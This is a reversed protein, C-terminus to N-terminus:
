ALGSPLPEDLAHLLERAAARIDTVLTGHEDLETAHPWPWTRCIRISPRVHADRHGLLKLFAELRQGDESAAYRRQLLWPWLSEPIADYRCAGVKAFDSGAWNRIYEGIELSCTLYLRQAVPANRFALHVNPRAHWSGAQQALFEALRQARGTRYLARAQPKLEALWTCLALNDGDQMLAIRQTTRGAEDLMVVAGLDPRRMPEINGGPVVEKMLAMLRRQRRQDNAGARGLTTFPLLHAFHEETFAILDDMVVREAPALLGRELLTWWDEILEHWGLSRVDQQEIEIGRRRLQEAQDSPEDGRIKSEIVVVLEEGFRLVGDLRQARIREAIVTGSLDRGVDPSLFVSILHRLTLEDAASSAPMKLVDRAQIDLEAEPLRASPPAGVRALLADRALPTTRMVIMAARTLQDEHNPPRDYPLFVSLHRDV